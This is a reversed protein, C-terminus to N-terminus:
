DCLITVFTNIEDDSMEYSYLGCFFGHFHVKDANVFTESNININLEKFIPQRTFNGTVIPRTEIGNELLYNLFVKKDYKSNLMLPIAFWICKCNEEIDFFTFKDKNKTLIKNKIKNYNRMRMDNQHNLKSLQVKGMAGQTEMPRLNYGINVFCFRNDIIKDYDKYIDRSWGHSRLCKLLNYDNDDNCIIMGGEITTIHHSFYFSFTGFNGFNGLFKDNYKSGLSECTDEILILNHKNKLEMLTNMNTSNGLIHVSMIGRIKKDTDLLKEIASVDINLTNPTIDVFVPILNNQLLPWVSTSWCVCPVIIKDGANLKNKYKINCIASVALLNASSGSNVMVAHKCGIYNAFMKEFTEVENGMTLKDSLLVSIMSLIEESGYTKKSLPFSFKKDENFTDEKFLKNVINYLQQMDNDVNNTM